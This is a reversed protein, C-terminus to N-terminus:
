PSYKKEEEAENDTTHNECQRCSCRKSCALGTRFCECYKRVCRNNKCACGLGPERIRTEFADPRKELCLQIALQREGSTDSDTNYCGICTCSETCVKGSQFCTCYLKLCRSRICNCFAEGPAATRAANGIGATVFARPNRALISRIAKTRAGEPGSEAVTNKCDVCGCSKPNCRRGAKFCDCYLAICKSKPCTCGTPNEHMPGIELTAQCLLDLKDLDSKHKKSAPRPTPSEVRHKSNDRGDSKVFSTSAPPPPSHFGPSAAPLPPASPWSWSPPRPGVAQEDRREWHPRPDAVKDNRREWGGGQPSRNWHWSRGAHTSPVVHQPPPPPPQRGNYLTWSSSSYHRSAGLLGRESHQRWDSPAGRSFHSDWVSPASPRIDRGRISSRQQQQQQGVHEGLIRETHEGQTDHRYPQKEMLPIRDGVEGSLKPRSEVPIITGIGPRRHVEHYSQGAPPLSPRPSSGNRGGDGKDCRGGPGNVAIM